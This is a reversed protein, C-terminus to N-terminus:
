QWRWRWFTPSVERDSEAQEYRPIEAPSEAERSFNSEVGGPWLATVVYYYATDAKLARDTFNAATLASSNIKVYGLHPASSRFINYGLADSRSQWTLYVNKVATFASAYITSEAVLGAPTKPYGWRVPQAFESLAALATKAAEEFFDFNLTDITDGPTHYHPNNVDEDEIACFASYGRDWFPSHDSYVFSPNISKRVTLGTYTDAAWETREAMWSSAPNVVVDLDEPMTDAYAIMDLNVVGVIRESSVRAGDSYYLSGYLGWEEASFAIFRVTFDLPYGALIRAAEMVAAVGSADDDAGPASVTRDSSTSDYHACIIVIEEPDTEGRIEAIVNRTSIDGSFTFPQFKAELGLSQFYNLIFQGAAECNATSTFRTQFDQLSQVYARLNARSIQGIITQIVDNVKLEHAPVEPSPATRLFPRISFRPLPKRAVDAPLLALPDGQDAWFLYLNPEIPQLHGFGSIATLKAASLVRLLFYEKGQSDRDLVSVSLGYRRLSSMEDRDARALFCTELEQLVDIQCSKLFDVLGPTRKSIKVLPIPRSFSFLSFALFFILLLRFPKMPRDKAFLLIKILDM